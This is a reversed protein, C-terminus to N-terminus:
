ILSKRGIQEENEGRILEKEDYSSLGKQYSLSYDDSCYQCNAITNFHCNEHHLILIKKICIINNYKISQYKKWIIVTDFFIM